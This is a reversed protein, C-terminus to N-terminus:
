SGGYLIEEASRKGGGQGSRVMGDDGIAKGIKVFLRVVEPHNGYGTEDMAKKLEPTGFVGMAKKALTVNDQFAPGGIEPDAEVDQAWKAVQGAWAEVQAAVIKEQVKPVLAAFKQAAENTLQAEKAISEFETMLEPDAQFGEPFTLEYKEPVQPGKDGEGDAKGDGAKGEGQEGKAGGAADGGEAKAGEQGAEGGEQGGKDASQGADGGTMLTSGGTGGQEVSAAENMLRSFLSRMLKSM